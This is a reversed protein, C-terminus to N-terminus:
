APKSVLGSLLDILAKRLRGLGRRGDDPQATVQQDQHQGPQQHQRMAARRPEDRLGRTDAPLGGNLDMSPRGSSSAHRNHAIADGAPGRSANRSRGLASSLGIGLVRHGEELSGARQRAHQPPPLSHSNAATRSAALARRAASISACHVAADYAGPGQLTLLAAALAACPLPDTVLYWMEKGSAGSLM